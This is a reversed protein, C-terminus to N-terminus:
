ATGEAEPDLWVQKLWPPSVAFRITNTTAIEELPILHVRSGPTFRDRGALSIANGAHSGGSVFLLGTEPGWGDRSVLGADSGWNGMGLHYNYGHHSSARQDVRGDPRFRLQM